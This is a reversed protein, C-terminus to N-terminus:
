KMSLTWTRCQCSKHFILLYPEGGELLLFSRGRAFFEVNCLWQMSNRVVLLVERKSSFLTEICGYDSTMTAMNMRGNLARHNYFSTVIALLLPWSCHWWDVRSGRHVRFRDRCGFYQWQRCLFHSWQDLSLDIIRIFFKNNSVLTSCRHSRGVSVSMSLSFVLRKMTSRHLQRIVRHNWCWPVACPSTIRPFTSQKRSIM